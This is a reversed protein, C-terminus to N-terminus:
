ASGVPSAYSAEADQPTLATVIIAHQNSYGSGFIGLLGANGAALVCISGKSWAYEVADVLTQATGTLGQLDNGLSLNIVQAGHDAAYRIGQAVTDISGGCSGGGQNSLVRVPMISAGPAVGVVGIGNDTDAAAIGAVHTGHGCDDQPAQGPSVFNAGSVLRGALDPHGLDVGTDVVAITAGQGIGTAWATPAGVLRMGWQKPFLPDNPNSGLAGAAVPVAVLAILCLFAFGRRLTARRGWGAPSVM